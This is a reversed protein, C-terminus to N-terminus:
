SRRAETVRKEIVNLFGRRRGLAFALRGGILNAALLAGVIVSGYPMM